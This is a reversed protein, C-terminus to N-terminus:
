DRERRRRLFGCAGILTWALLSSPEPVVSFATNNFPVNPDTADISQDGTGDQTLWNGSDGVLPLYDAFSVESARPGVYEMIDEDGVISVATTGAVLGTGALTSEASAQAPDFGENSIAALFVDPTIDNSADLFAFLQEGSGSLNFTGSRSLAGRSVAASSNSVSTFDVVSGAAIVSGGTDWAILGESSSFSAGGWNKDTFFIDTNAGIDALAVIQFADDGDANFGTFAMDGAIMSANATTTFVFVIPLLFATRSLM